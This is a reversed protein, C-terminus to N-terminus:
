DDDGADDEDDMDEDDMDDDDRDEDDLDDDFDDDFDDYDDDDMDDDVDDDDPLSDRDPMGDDLDELDAQAIQFSAAFPAEGGADAAPGTAHVISPVFWALALTSMWASLPRLKQRNM